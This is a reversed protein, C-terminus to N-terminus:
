RSPVSTRYLWLWVVSRGFSWVLAALAAALCGTMIAVPLVGATAVVLVVGQVVAVVKGTLTPPVPARLWALVAGAAIFAYRMLGIGLVWAGIQGAVYASLVLILFADVEMDFRAGLASATGTRRAVQGDVADLALAVSAIIVLPAVPTDGNWLGDTVLATVVGVLLARALTVLDAPGLTTARARRVAATLLAWLGLTYATGALWGVPGLGLGASLAALLAVQVGAGAAQLVGVPRRALSTM